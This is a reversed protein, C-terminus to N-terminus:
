VLSGESRRITTIENVCASKNVGLAWFGKFRERNFALIGLERVSSSLSDFLM